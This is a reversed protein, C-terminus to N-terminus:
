KANDVLLTIAKQVGLDTKLNKTEEEGFISKVQELEMNYQEAM